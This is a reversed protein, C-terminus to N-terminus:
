KQGDNGRKEGKRVNNSSQGTKKITASSQSGNSRAAGSQQPVRNVNPNGPPPLSQLRNVLAVSEDSASILEVDSLHDDAWSETVNDVDICNDRGSRGSQNVNRSNQEEPQRNSTVAAVQQKPKSKNRPYGGQRNQTGQNTGSQTAVSGRTNSSRDAKGGVRQQMPPMSVTSVPAPNPVVSSCASKDSDVSAGGVNAPTSARAPISAKNTPLYRDDVLPHPPKSSDPRVPPVDFRSANGTECAFVRAGYDSVGVAPGRGALESIM